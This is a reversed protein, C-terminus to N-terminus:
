PIRVLTRSWLSWTIASEADHNILTLRLEDGVNQLRWRGHVDFPVSEWAFRFVGASHEYVEQRLATGYWWLWRAVETDLTVLLATSGEEVVRIGATIGQDIGAPQVSLTGIIREIVMGPTPEISMDAVMAALLDASAATTGAALVNERDSAPLWVYRPRPGRTQRRRRTTL